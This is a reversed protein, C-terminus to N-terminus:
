SIEQPQIKNQFLVKKAIFRKPKPCIFSESGSPIQGHGSTPDPVLVGCLSGSPVTNTSPINLPAHFIDHLTPHLLQQQSLTLGVYAPDM